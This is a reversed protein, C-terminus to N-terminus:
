NRWKDGNGDNDYNDGGGYDNSDIVDIVDGQTEKRCRPIWLSEKGHRKGLFIRYEKVNDNV